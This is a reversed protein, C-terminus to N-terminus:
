FLPRKAPIGVRRPYRNPCPAVRRLVVFSEGAPLASVEALGVMALGAAPWRLVGQRVPPESAVVQGGEALLPAACEATVAPPGFSRVVVLDYGSRHDPSRGLEEARDKIIEARGALDLEEVARQLFETRRLNSDLFCWRTTPWCRAALVLGPLGGGAGLDLAHGPAEARYARYRLAHEIHAEVPGPGLFGLQRSETLLRVLTDTM